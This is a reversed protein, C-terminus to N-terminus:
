ALLNTKLNVGIEPILGGAVAFYIIEAAVESLVARANYLGPM